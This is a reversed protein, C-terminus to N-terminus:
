ILGVIFMTIGAGLLLCGALYVERNEPQSPITNSGKKGAYLALILGVQFAIISYDILAIPRSLGHPFFSATRSIDYIGLAWPVVLGLHFLGLLMFYVMPGTAFSLRLVYRDFLLSVTFLLGTALIATSDNGRLTTQWIAFLATCVLVASSLPALTKIQLRV